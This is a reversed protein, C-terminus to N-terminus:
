PKKPRKRGAGNASRLVVGARRLARWVTTPDVSFHQGLQALSMGGAYLTSAEDVAAEDLGQRRMAVGADRLITLITGKGLGYARCLETTPAGAQYDDVLHQRAEANLRHVARCRGRNRTSPRRVSTTSMIKDALRALHEQNSYSGVLEVGLYPGAVLM